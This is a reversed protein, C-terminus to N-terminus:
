RKFRAITKKVGSMLLALRYSLHLATWIVAKVSFAKDSYDRWGVRSLFSYRDYFDDKGFARSKIAMYVADLLRNDIGTEFSQPLTKRLVRVYDERKQIKEPSYGHIASDPNVAMDYHYLAKPVYSVTIGSMVLQLNFVKDEGYSLNENYRINRETYVSRKLLKNCPGGQLRYFLDELFGDRDFSAPQQKLIVSEKGNEQVMDCLVMDAGSHVAEDYLLELYDPEVWDDADAHITYDGTAHEIGFQRTKGIGENQKHFAKFRNDAVTAKDCIEGSSDTSGDDILLAEIDTMTQARLSDLLRELTKEANYVAIILSIKMNSM